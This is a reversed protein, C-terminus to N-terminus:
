RHWDHHLRGHQNRLSQIGRYGIFVGIRNFCLLSPLPGPFHYLDPVRWAVTASHLLASRLSSCLAQIPKGPCSCLTVARPLRPLAPNAIYICHKLSYTHSKHLLQYRLLGSTLNRAHLLCSAKFAAFRLDCCLVCVFTASVVFSTRYPITTSLHLVTLFPQPSFSVSVFIPLSLDSLFLFFFNTAGSASIERTRDLPM